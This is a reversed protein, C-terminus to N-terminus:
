LSDFAPLEAGNERGIHHMKDVIDAFDRKTQIKYFEATLELRTQENLYPALIASCRLLYQSAQSVYTNVIHGYLFMGGLLSLLISAVLLMRGVQRGALLFKRKAVLITAGSMSSVFGVVWFFMAMLDANPKMAGVRAYVGDVLTSIGLTTLSLAGDFVSSGVPKILDWLASGLCGLLIAGLWTFLKPRRFAALM